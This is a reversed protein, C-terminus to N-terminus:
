NKSLQRIGVVGWFGTMFLWIAGPVPVTQVQINSINVSSETFPDFVDMVGIGYNLTGAGLAKWTFKGTTGTGTFTDAVISIDALSLSVFAFDNWKSEEFSETTSWYWDFSFVQGEVIDFSGKLASGEIADGGIVGDLSGSDIGLFSEIEVDSVAWPANTSLAHVGPLENYNGISDVGVASANETSTFCIFLFVGLVKKM